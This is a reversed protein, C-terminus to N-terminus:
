SESWRRVPQSDAPLDQLLEAVTKGQIPHRLEPAIEALPALVFRRLHMREHPLVLGEERIVQGDVMLLDLDIVRPAWRETRERGMQQEIALASQLLQRPALDTEVAAALNIFDPQDERDQPDTEWASSVSLLRIGATQALLEIAQRCSRLRDGLNAGVSFYASAV